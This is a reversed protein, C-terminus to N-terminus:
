PSPFPQTTVLLRSYSLTQGDAATHGEAGEKWAETDEEKFFLRPPKIIGMPEAAERHCAETVGPVLFYSRKRHCGCPERLRTRKRLVSRPILTMM